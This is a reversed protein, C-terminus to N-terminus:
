SEIDLRSNDWTLMKGEAVIRVLMRGVDYHERTREPMQERPTIFGRYKEGVLGDVHEWDPDAVIEARGSVHVACLERWAEGSEVLFSVRDDHRIRSFKKGSKPGSVYIARDEVVFWVPLAIPSGDRRLTVLIGTHADRLVDWAEEESLRVSM